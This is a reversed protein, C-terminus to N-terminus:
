VEVGYKKIEAVLTSYKDIFDNPKMPIPQIAMNIELAMLSLRIYDQYYNESFKNSIVCLDIDSWEQQLGKAWSGFLLVKADDFGVSFLKAKFPKVIKKVQDLDLKTVM